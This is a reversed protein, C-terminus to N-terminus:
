LDFGMGFLTLIAAKCPDWELCLKVEEEFAACRRRPTQSLNKRSGSSRGLILLNLNRRGSQSAVLRIGEM